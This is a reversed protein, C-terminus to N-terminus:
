FSGSEGYLHHQDEHSDALEFPLSINYKELTSKKPIKGTKKMNRLVENRARNYMCESNNKIEQYKEVRTKGTNTNLCKNLGERSKVLKKFIEDIPKDHELVHLVSLTSVPCECNWGAMLLEKLERHKEPEKNMKYEIRGLWREVGYCAVWGKNMPSLTLYPNPFHGHRDQLMNYLQDQTMSRYTPFGNEDMTVTLKGVWWTGLHTNELVYFITPRGM